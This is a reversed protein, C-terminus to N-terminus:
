RVQSISRTLSILRSSVIAKPTHGVAEPRDIGSPSRAAPPWLTVRRLPRCMKRAGRDPCPM